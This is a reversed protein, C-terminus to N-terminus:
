KSKKDFYDSLLVKKMLNTSRPGLYQEVFDIYLLRVIYKRFLKIDQVVEVTSMKKQARQLMKVQARAIDVADTIKREGLYESILKLNEASKLQLFAAFVEPNDLPDPKDKEVYSIIATQGATERERTYVDDYVIEVDLLDRNEGTGPGAELEILFISTGGLPINNGKISNKELSYSVAGTIRTNEAPTLNIVIDKAAVNILQSLEKEFVAKMQDPTMVFYYNGRGKEAIAVMLDENYDLGVGFTSTRIQSDFLAGTDSGIQVPDTIGENAQGDSLLIVQSVANSNKTGLAEEGGKMLGGHLNTGGRTGFSNIQNNLKDEDLRDSSYLVLPDNNYIVLSVWDQEPDLYEPVTRLGEKVNRMKSGLMSGSNDVVLSLNVPFRKEPKEESATLKLLVYVKGGKLNIQPNGNLLELKLAGPFLSLGAITCLTIILGIKKM